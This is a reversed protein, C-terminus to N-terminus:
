FRGYVAVGNMTPLMTLRAAGRRRARTAIIGGALLSVGGGVQMAGLGASVIAMSLRMDPGAAAIMPGVFPILM